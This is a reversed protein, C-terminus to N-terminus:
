SIMGATASNFGSPSPALRGAPLHHQQADKALGEDLEQQDAGRQEDRPVQHAGGICAEARGVADHDGLVIELLDRERPDSLAPRRRARLLHPPEDVGLHALLDEVALREREAEVLVVRDDLALERALHFEDGLVQRLELLRLGLLQAGPVLAVLRAERKRRASREPV